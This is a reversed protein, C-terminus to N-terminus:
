AVEVIVSVQFHFRAQKPALRVIEPNRNHVTTGTVHRGMCKISSTTTSFGTNLTSIDVNDTVSGSIYISGTEVVIDNNGTTMASDCDLAGDVTTFRLNATPIEISERKTEAIHINGTEDAM